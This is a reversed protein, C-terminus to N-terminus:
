YQHGTHDDIAVGANATITDYIGPGCDFMVRDQVVPVNIEGPTCKPPPVTQPSPAKTPMPAHVIAPIRIPLAATTTPAPETTM